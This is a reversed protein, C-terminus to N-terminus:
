ELSGRLLKERAVAIEGAGKGFNQMTQLGIRHIRDKPKMVQGSSQLAFLGYTKSIGIPDNEAQLYGLVLDNKVIYARVIVHITALAKAAATQKLRM